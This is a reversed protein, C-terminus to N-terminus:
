TRGRRSALVAQVSNLTSPGPALVVLGGQHTQTFRFLREDAGDRSGILDFRRRASRRRHKNGLKSAAWSQLRSQYRHRVQEAAHSHRRRDEPRRECFATGGKDLLDNGKKAIACTLALHTQEHNLIRASEAITADTFDKVIVKSCDDANNVSDGRPTSRAPCRTSPASSLAFTTTEDPKLNRFATQCRTVVAASGNKTPDAANLWKAKVWSKAPTFVGQFRKTGGIASGTVSEECKKSPVDVRDIITATEADFPSSAPPTGTFSSWDPPTTPNCLDPDPAAAQKCAALEKDRQALRLIEEEKKGTFDAEPGAEDLGVFAPIRRLRRVPQEEEDDREGEGTIEASLSSRRLAGGEQVVHALEHALLRRGAITSPAYNSAGLVVHDGVTYAHSDVARASTAAQADAHVRVRSFDHGFRREMFRRVGGDLPQGPRALVQDVIPPAPACGPSGSAAGSRRVQSVPAGAGTAVSGNRMAADAVREAQFEEPDRAGGIVLSPGFKKRECEACTGGPSSTKAGCACARRLMAGRQSNQPGPVAALRQHESM